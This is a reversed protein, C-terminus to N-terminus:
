DKLCFQGEEFHEFLDEKLNEGAERFLFNSTIHPTLM